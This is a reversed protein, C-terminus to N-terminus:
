LRHIPAEEIVLSSKIQSLEEASLGCKDLMYGEPGGFKERVMKLTAMM